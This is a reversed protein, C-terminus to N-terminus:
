DFIDWKPKKPTEPQRDPQAAPAPAETAAPTPRPAEPPESQRGIRPPEPDTAPDDDDDFVSFRRAPKQPYADRVPPNIREEPEAANPKVDEGALDEFPIRKTKLITKELWFKVAFRKDEDEMLFYHVPGFFENLQNADCTPLFIRLVRPDYFRFYLELGDETKVKLFRRFHESVDKLDASSSLIVGWHDGWGKQFFYDDFDSFESFTFVFPGVAQLLTDAKSNFLPEVHRNLEKAEEMAEGMRASDLLIFNGAHM